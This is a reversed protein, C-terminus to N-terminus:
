PEGGSYQVTLSPTSISFEATPYPNTSSNTTPEPQHLEKNNILQNNNNKNIGRHPIKKGKFKKGTTEAKKRKKDRSIISIINNNQNSQPQFEGFQRPPHRL